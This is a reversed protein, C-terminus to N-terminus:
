MGRGDVLADVDIRTGPRFYQPEPDPSNCVCGFVNRRCTVCRPGLGHGEAILEARIAAYHIDAASLGADADKVSGRESQRGVSHATDLREGGSGARRENGLSTLASPERGETDFPGSQIDAPSERGTVPIAACPIASAPSKFPRNM